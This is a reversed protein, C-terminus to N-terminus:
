SFRRVTKAFRRANVAREEALPACQHQSPCEMKHQDRQAGQRKCPYREGDPSEYADAPVAAGSLACRTSNM